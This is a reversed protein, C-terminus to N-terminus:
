SLEILLQKHGPQFIKLLQMCNKWVSQLKLTFSNPLSHPTKDPLLDPSAAPVHANGRRVQSCESSLPLLPQVSHRRNRSVVQVCVLIRPSYFHLSSHKKICWSTQTELFVTINFKSKSMNRSQLLPLLWDPQIATKCGSWKSGWWDPQTQHGM